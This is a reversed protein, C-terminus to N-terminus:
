EVGANATTGVASDVAVEVRDLEATLARLLAPLATLTMDAAATELEGCAESVPYAGIDAAAGKLSHARAVIAPGDGMAVSARMAAVDSAAQEAFTTLLLALLGSGGAPDLERLVLLRDPYLPRRTGRAGVACRALIGELQRPGIPKSLHDDMGVALCEDRDDSMARATVAIIPTHRSTGERRRVEITTEFGDMEPMHCDMLVAAYAKHELAALAEIGNAAIDCRYGLQAAIGEAVRQNIANDEVVLLWGMEAVPLRPAKAPPSVASAPATGRRFPLVIWFTSGRGLESEVGLRGGMVDSLRHCISLGLGTGGYRRTTAIDAQSFPEFLRGLHSPGIGPGTDKVEIRVTVEEAGADDVMRAVLTIVGQETFKVANSVLNVLIQRLRCPDGRLAQPLGPECSVVMALGKARATEAVLGAVEELAIGLNFDVDELDLKGAEIKSFDLIDNIV